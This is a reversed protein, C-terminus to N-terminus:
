FNKPRPVAHAGYLYGASFCTGADRRDALCDETIERLKKTELTWKDPVRETYAVTFGADFALAPTVAAGKGGGVTISDRNALAASGIARPLLQYGEETGGVAKALKIYIKKLDGVQAVRRLATVCSDAADPAFSDGESRAEKVSEPEKAMACVWRQVDNSEATDEMMKNLIARREAAIEEPSEKQALLASFALLSLSILRGIL